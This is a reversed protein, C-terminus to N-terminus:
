TPSRASSRSATATSSATAWGAWCSLRSWRVVGATAVPTAGAKAPSASCLLVMLAAACDMVIQIIAAMTLATQRVAAPRDALEQLKAALEPREISQERHEEALLNDVAKEMESVTVKASPRVVEEYSPQQSAIVTILMPREPRIGAKRAVEAIVPLIAYAV